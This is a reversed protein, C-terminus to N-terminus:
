RGPAPARRGWDTEVCYALLRDLYDTVRPPQLGAPALLAKATATDFTMRMSFYSRYARGDRLVRRKPGWLLAFLLPRVLAFFLDPDVYRPPRV